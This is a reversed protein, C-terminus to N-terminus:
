RQVQTQLHFRIACHHTSPGSGNGATGKEMIIEGRRMLVSNQYGCLPLELFACSYLLSLSHSSPSPFCSILLSSLIYDMMCLHEIEVKKSFDHLFIEGKRGETVKDVKVKKQREFHVLDRSSDEKIECRVEHSYDIFLRIQIGPGSLPFQSSSLVYVSGLCKAESLDYMEAWVANSGKAEKSSGKVGQVSIAKASKLLMKYECVCRRCLRANSGFLRVSM